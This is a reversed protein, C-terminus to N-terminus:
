PSLKGPDAKEFPLQAMELALNELDPFLNSRRIGLQRLAISLGQKLDAPVDIRRLFEAAQPHHNLPTAAGYITFAALQVAMRVDIEEGFTAVTETPATAQQHFAAAILKAARPDATNLVVSERIMVENLRFPDLVWVTADGSVEDRVAFHLAILPSQTWDLLRTPLRYHQMLQLWSSFDDKAPCKAYRTPAARMFRLIVNVEHFRTRGDRHASPVLHWAASSQGRWLLEAGFDSFIHFCLRIYELLDSAKHTPIPGNPM